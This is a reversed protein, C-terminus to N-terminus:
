SLMIMFIFWAGCGLFINQFLKKRKERDHNKIEHPLIRRLERKVEKKVLNRLDNETLNFTLRKVTTESSTSSTANKINMKSQKGKLFTKKIPLVDRKPTAVQLTYNKIKEPKKM